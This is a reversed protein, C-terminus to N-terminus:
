INSSSNRILTLEEIFIKADTLIEKSIEKDKKLNINCKAEVVQSLSNFDFDM